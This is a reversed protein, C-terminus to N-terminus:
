STAHLKALEEFLQKEKASLRTPLVVQVRAMLNGAGDGKLRPMGKGALRFVQGNQTQPRVTLLLRKGDLTPVAVEGGLIATMLPAQVDVSLDDGKREFLPDPKVTVILYLDGRPGGLLGPQGEGVVRVRSATEVGAPIQVELRKSREVSGTGKCVPCPRGPAVRGTGACSACPEPLQVNYVRTTGTYAEALTVEVPQEINDGPRTAPTPRQRTATGTSKRGFLADFFDSFGTPDESTGTWDGGTTTAGRRPGMPGSRFGFQDQWNPGLTDYKKRKDPDSLVEYAENIEKFRAEASKDGPNVDPHYKRALKRYAKKLEDASASKQVGLIKYYDKYEM